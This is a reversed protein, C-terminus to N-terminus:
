SNGRAGSHESELRYSLGLRPGEERVAVTKFLIQNRWTLGQGSQSEKPLGDRRRAQTQTTTKNINEGVHGM